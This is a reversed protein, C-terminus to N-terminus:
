RTILVTILASNLDINDEFHHDTQVKVDLKKVKFFNLKILTM